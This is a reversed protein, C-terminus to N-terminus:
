INEYMGGLKFIKGSPKVFLQRPFNAFVECGTETIRISESIEVGYQALWIGPIVHFTMNPQLVTKDGPRLSVTHEGWDPPYNLGMSYGIRTDKIFGSKAISKSWVAEVEEATMGPKIADITANLGEIVVDALYTVKPNTEGIFVTRSLPSHYRKYCGALELIVPDGSKYPEDTWTLHPTGTKIGSPLLPMIAPYDGGYSATGSIQAHMIAAVVDCERVGVEIADIGTQMAKEVIKTANRIYDIERASKIIRIYNVLNTADQFTAQSLEARLRTYCKATFYYTDMEIGITANAEGIEKLINSVFDMPHKETSHVFDDPYGILHSDGLWTTARAGNLDQGRGIWFPEEEDILIMLLQHVYFTWGDYGTLYNMNAPDTILLVDLGKEVMKEKTKRIREKYEMNAFATM